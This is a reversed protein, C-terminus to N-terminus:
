FSARSFVIPEALATGLAMAFHEAVVDLADCCRRDAAECAAATDLARAAQNVLLGAADELYEELGGDAVRDGVGLVGTALGDGCLVNYVGKREPASGDVTKTAFVIAATADRRTSGLGAPGCLRGRGVKGRGRGCSLAVFASAAVEAWPPPDWLPVRGFIDLRAVSILPPFYMIM